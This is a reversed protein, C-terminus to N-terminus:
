VAAAELLGFGALTPGSALGPKRHRQDKGAQDHDIDPDSIKPPAPAVGLKAAPRCHQGQSLEEGQGPFDGAPYFEPGRRRGAAAAAAGPRLAQGHGAGGRRVRHRGIGQRHETSLVHGIRDLVFSVVIEATKQQREAPYRKHKDLHAILEKELDRAAAARERRHGARARGLAAGEPIAESSPTATAEAAVSETSAPDAGRGSEPEDEKPKKSENTTVVRDPEETETPM